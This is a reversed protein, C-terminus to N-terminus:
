SPARRLTVGASARPAAERVSEGLTASRGTTCSATSGVTAMAFALLLYGQITRM